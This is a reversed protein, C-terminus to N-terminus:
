VGIAIWSGIRPNNTSFTITTSDYAIVGHTTGIGGGSLAQCSVTVAYLASSFPTPLTVVTTGSVPTFNGWQILIGGPLRQFGNASASQNSGTFFNSISSVSTATTATSASGASNAYNANGSISINWTGSAGSGGTSPVDLNSRAGSASTSGTGGNAVGLTGTFSINPTSGGSSALPSSASISTVGGAPLSGVAWTTGNWQPIQGVVTGVLGAVIGTGNGIIIAGSTLTNTGTGGRSVPLIGTSINGANLATLNAGSGSFSTATVAGTGSNFTFASNGTLGGSSNFQVQTNSGGAPVAGSSWITGDSRLVQGNAGPAVLQVASTGNGLLVSNATLTSRGTGGSAVSTFNQVEVIDTGTNYVLLSRGAPVVVSAGSPNGAIKNRVTVADALGNNIIYPKEINAGSSLYLNRAGGSTGILNLRYNRAIQSANSNTLSLDVDASSFPVDASGVIAEEVATGLNTNTTAGWQGVQEGTGILELKLSSYTSAM